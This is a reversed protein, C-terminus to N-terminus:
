KCSRKIVTVPRRRLIARRIWLWGGIAMTWCGSSIWIGLKEMRTKGREVRLLFSSGPPWPGRCLTLGTGTHKTLEVRRAKEDLAVWSPFFFLPLVVDAGMGAEDSIAYKQFRSGRIEVQACHRGDPLADSALYSRAESWAGVQPLYEGNADIVAAWRDPDVIGGNSHSTYVSRIAGFTMLLSIAALASMLWAPLWSISHRQPDVLGAYAVLLFAASPTLFRYAFQIRRLGPILDYLPQSIPTMMLLCVWSALLLRITLSRRFGGGGGRNALHVGFWGVGVLLVHLGWAWAIRMGLSDEAIRWDGLPAAPWLFSRELHAGKFLSSSEGATHPILEWIPLLYVASLGAACLGALGLFCGLSWRITAAVIALLPLFLMATLLHSLLLGTIAVSLWLVAGAIRWAQTGPNAENGSLVTDLILFRWLIAALWGYAWHEAYAARTLMVNGLHNPAVVFLAALALASGRKAGAARAAAYGFLGAAISSMGFGVLLQSPFGAGEIGPRYILTCIWYPLPPYFYFVPSGLGGNSSPLWRPYWDGALFAARFDALWRAHINADLASTPIGSCAVIGLLLAALFLITGIGCYRVGLDNRFTSVVSLSSGGSQSKNKTMVSAVVTRSLVSRYDLM